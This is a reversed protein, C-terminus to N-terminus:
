KIESIKTSKWTLRSISPTMPLLKIAKIFDHNVWHIRRDPIIVSHPIEEFFWKRHGRPHSLPISSNDIPTTTLFPYSSIYYCSKMQSSSSAFFSILLSLLFCLLNWCDTYSFICSSVVPIFLPHKACFLWIYFNSFCLCKTVLVTFCASNPPWTLAPVTGILVYFLQHLSWATGKFLSHNYLQLILVIIMQVVM